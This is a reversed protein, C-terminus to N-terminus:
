IQLEGSDDAMEMGMASTQNDKMDCPQLRDWNVACLPQDAQMAAM